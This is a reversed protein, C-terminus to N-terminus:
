IEFLSVESSEDHKKREDKHRSEGKSKKRSSKKKKSRRHAREALVADEQEGDAFSVSVLINKGSSFIEKSQAVDHEPPCIREELIEKKRKKEKKRLKRQKDKKKKDKKRKKRKVKEEMIEEEEEEEIEEEDESTLEDYDPSSYADSDGVEAFFSSGSSIDSLGESIGPNRRKTRRREVVPSRVRERSARELVEKEVSPSKAKLDNSPRYRHERYREVEDLQSSHQEQRLPRSHDHKSQTHFEGAVRSGHQHRGAALHDFHDSHAHQQPRYSYEFNPRGHRGFRSPSSGHGGRFRGNHGRRVGGYDPRGRSFRTM